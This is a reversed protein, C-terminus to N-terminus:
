ADGSGPREPPVRFGLQRLRERKRPWGPLVKVRLDLYIQRAILSEIKRRSLEGVKKISSGGRGIVIGKQSEREVYITMRVYVPDRDERFEEVRCAISYPVEEHFLDMCTERVYEEAFFRVPQTATDEPPFLPPSEPLREVVWKVLRELGTGRAASVALADHGLATAAELLAQLDAGTTRDAKNICILMPAGRSRIAASMEDSALTDPRTGDVVFVIVDAEEIAEDAALRMSEQLAYGAELLGPGDLFVLQYTETTVLGAVRERTTQAKRSVISLHEGVLSNLLTSKGVNPRGALTVYGCRFGPELGGPPRRAAHEEGDM